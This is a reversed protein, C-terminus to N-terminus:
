SFDISQDWPDSSKGRRNVQRRDEEFRITERRDGTKRRDGGQRTEIQFKAKGRASPESPDIPKMSLKDLNPKDNTNM